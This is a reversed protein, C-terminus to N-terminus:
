KDTPKELGSQGGFFVLHGESLSGFFSIGAPQAFGRFNVVDRCARLAKFMNVRACKELLITTGLGDFDSSFCIHLRLCAM